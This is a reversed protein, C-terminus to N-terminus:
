YSAQGGGEWWEAPCTDAPRAAVLLNWMDTFAPLFDEEHLIASNLKWYSQPIAPKAAQELSLGSVSVYLAMHDSLSAVHEVAQLNSALHSSLYARDLRSPASGRRHFTFAPLRGLKQAADVLGYASVLRAWSRSAKKSFNHTTDEQLIISNFDGIVIPLEPSAALAAAVEGNYFAERAITESSGSPAHLHLFAISPFTVLQLFGPHLDTFTPPTKTKSLVVLKRDSQPPSTSSFATYHLRRALAQLRPQDLAVEQLFIISPAPTPLADLLLALGGM